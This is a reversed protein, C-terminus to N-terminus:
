KPIVDNVILEGAENQIWRINYSKGSELHTFDESGLLVEAEGGDPLAVTAKLGKAEADLLEAKRAINLFVDELTSLSLQMNVVGLGAKQSELAELAGKLRADSDRPIEFTLYTPESETPAVDLNDKFFKKVAERDTDSEALNVLDAQSGRDAGKLTVTVRFGAGFRSKLRLSSGVCRLSGKAMIGIRDGLIDAEEMSHTTLVICRGAKAEEIIDWVHRRTVPDMGTTPEDLYVVSPSGLFALMLSLRRKMGGSYSGSVQNTAETLRAMQLLKTAEEGAEELSMGKMLGFIEIHERGTLEKWLADFQPCVGMRQRIRELGLVSRLPEGLVYAEGGSPPLVGTLCNITTSKGAGNPGLLCFLEGRGVGLWSGVIARFVEPKRLCGKGVLFQKQLDYLQVALEPPVAGGDHVKRLYGEMKEAEQRVDEDVIHADKGALGEPLDRVAGSKAPFWYSPQLFFYFPLRVGHENPLVKDLYIALVLYTFWLLTLLEFVEGLPMKCQYNVYTNPDYAQDKSPVGFKCYSYREEWRLGPSEKTVTAMGLDGLGKAFLNWPMIAFIGALLKTTSNTEFDSMSYPYGFAVVIQFIWGVIFLTFGATNATQAKKFFTSLFFGFSTMAMQFLFFLFFTLGYSNNNFVDFGFLMGFLVMATASVFVMGTEWATWSLWYLMENLGLNRMAQRMGQERESVVNSVQIVMGFMAAAFLFISAVSSISSRTAFAPHPFEKLNVQWAAEQVGAEGAQAGLERAAEREVAVQLPLQVFYNPSQFQGRYFRVTSNTQLSYAINKDDTLSTAGAPSFHVAAQVIEPNALMYADLAEPTDFGRVDKDAFALKGGGGNNAKMGAVIAEVRADGTPTYALSICDDKLYQDESCHPIRDMAM